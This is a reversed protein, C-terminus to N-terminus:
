PTTCVNTWITQGDLDGFQIVGCVMGGPCDSTRSCIGTCTNTANLCFGGRCNAGQSNTCTTGPPDQGHTGSVCANVFNIQWQLCLGVLDIVCVSFNVPACINGNPCDASSGCMSGCTGTGYCVGNRCDSLASCSAGNGGAGMPGNCAGIYRDSTFEYYQCAGGGCDSDESCQEVCSNNPCFNSQCQGGQTCSGGSPTAFSAGTFHQNSLCMKAGFYDYCTFSAPCDASNGCSEVCRMGVGDLDFCVGSQCDSNATCVANLPQNGVQGPNYCRGTTTNCMEPAVCGTTGCGPDCAGTVMNCITAPPSCDADSMCVPGGPDCRGTTQNCIQNGTCQIGGVETCGGVCQNQECVSMPPNCDSDMGCPGQVMVCRGANTDCVTGTPCPQAGPQGCGPVCQMNECILAPAGCETDNTCGGPPECRGTMQNCVNGGTCVLGGVQACGPICQMNECITAPPSCEADGSCTSQGPLCRGTTDDCFTGPNCVIPTGPSNCGPVCQMGECVTNPPMCENDMACSTQTPDICRGTVCVTPAICHSPEFCDVCQQITLDCHKQIPACDAESTCSRRGDVCVGTTTNCRQDPPCETDMTCNQIVQETCQGTALDCFEGIGCEDDSQCGIVAAGVCRAGICQQGSGCDQNTKCSGAPSSSCGAALGAVMLAFVALQPNKSLREGMGLNM